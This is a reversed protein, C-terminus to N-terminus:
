SLTCYSVEKEVLSNKVLYLIVIEWEGGGWKERNEGVSSLVLLGGNQCLQPSLGYEEVKRSTAYHRLWRRLRTGGLMFAEIIITIYYQEYNV